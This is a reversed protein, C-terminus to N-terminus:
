TGPSEAPEPSEAADPSEAPEPTGTAGAGHGHGQGHAGAGHAHAAKEQQGHQKAFQSVCHGIGHQGSTLQHRCADVQHQVQQGWVAPNPTGTVATGAALAVGGTVLVAAVAIVAAKLTLRHARRPADFRARPRRGALGRDLETTLWSDFDESM